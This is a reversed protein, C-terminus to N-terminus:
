QFAHIDRAQAPAAGAGLVVLLQRMEVLVHQAQGRHAGFWTQPDEFKGVAVMDLDEARVVRVPCVKVGSGDYPESDAVQGCGHLFQSARADFQEAFWSWGPLM